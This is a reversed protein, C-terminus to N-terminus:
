AHAFYTVPLTGFGKTVPGRSFNTKGAQAIYLGPESRSPVVLAVHGPGGNRNFWGAVVVLGENALGHAAHESVTAWGRERGAPSAFWQVLENARMGWPVPCGLASLMDRLAANCFTEPVGDGTIDRRQYRPCDGLRFQEVVADLLDPDRNSANSKLPADVPVTWDHDLWAPLAEDDSM